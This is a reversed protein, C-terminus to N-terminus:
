SPRAKGVMYVILSVQRNKSHHPPLSSLPSQADHRILNIGTTPPHELWIQHPMGMNRDEAADKKGHNQTPKKLPSILFMLSLNESDEECHKSFRLACFHFGYEM